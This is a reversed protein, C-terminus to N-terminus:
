ANALVLITTTHMMSMFSVSALVPLQAIWVPISKHVM